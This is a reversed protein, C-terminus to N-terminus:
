LKPRRAAQRLTRGLYAIGRSGAGRHVQQLKMNRLTRESVRLQKAAEAATYMTDDDDHREVVAPPVVAKKRPM